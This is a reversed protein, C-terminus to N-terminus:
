PYAPSWVIEGNLEEHGGLGDYRWGWFSGSDDGYMSGFLYEGVAGLEALKETFGDVGGFPEHESELQVDFAGTKEDVSCGYFEDEISTFYAEVEPIRELPFRLPNKTKFTGIQWGM